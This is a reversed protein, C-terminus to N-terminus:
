NTHVYENGEKMGEVSIMDATLRPSREAELDNRRWDLKCDAELGMAPAAVRVRRVVPRREEGEALLLKEM